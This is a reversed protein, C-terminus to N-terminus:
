KTIEKIPKNAPLFIDIRALSEAFAVQLMQKMDILPM